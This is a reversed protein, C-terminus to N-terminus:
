PRPQRGKTKNVNQQNEIVPPLIGTINISPQTQTDINQIPPPVPIPSTNINQNPPSVTVSASSQNNNQPNTASTVTSASPIQPQNPKAVSAKPQTSETQSTNAERSQTQSSTAGANPQGKRREWEAVQILYIEQIQQSNYGLQTLQEQLAIWNIADLASPPPTSIGAWPLQMPEKRPVFWDDNRARTGIYLGGVYLITFVVLIKGMREPNTTIERQINNLIGQVKTVDDKGIAEKISELGKEMDTSKLFGIATVILGFVAPIVVSAVPTQSSGVMYGLAAAILGIGINLWSAQITPKM